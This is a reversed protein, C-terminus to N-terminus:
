PKPSKKRNPKAQPSQSDNQPPDSYPSVAIGLVGGLQLRSFIGLRTRIDHWHIELTRATINMISAIEKDNLGGLSHRVVDFHRPTLASAGCTRLIADILGATPECLHKLLVLELEARLEKAPQGASM